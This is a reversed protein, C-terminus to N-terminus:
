RGDHQVVRRPYFARRSVLSLLWFLASFLTLGGLAQVIGNNLSFPGVLATPFALDPVVLAIAGALALTAILLNAWWAGRSRFLFGLILMLDIVAVTILVAVSSWYTTAVAAPALELGFAALQGNAVQPFSDRYWLTLAALMAAAGFAPLYLFIIVWRAFNAFPSRREVVTEAPVARPPPVVETRDTYGAGSHVAPQAPMRDTQFLPASATAEPQARYATPMAQTPADYITGSHDRREQTPTTYINAAHDTQTHGVAIPITTGEATADARPKEAAPWANASPTTPAEFVAPHQQRLWALGQQARQNEPAITLAHELASRQEYPDTSLGGLWTWGDANFPDDAVLQRLMRAADDRRGGRAAAIADDLTVSPNHTMVERQTM